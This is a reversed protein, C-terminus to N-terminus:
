DRSTHLLTHHETQAEHHPIALRIMHRISFSTIHPPHRLEQIHTVTDYETKPKHHPIAMRSTYQISTFTNHAFHRLGKM